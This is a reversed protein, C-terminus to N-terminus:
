SNNWKSQYEEFTIEGNDYQRQLKAQEANPMKEPKSISTQTSINKEVAAEKICNKVAADVV